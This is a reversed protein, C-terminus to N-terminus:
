VGLQEDRVVEAGCGCRQQRLDSRLGRNLCGCVGACVLNIAQKLSNGGMKDGLQELKVGAVPQSRSTSAHAVDLAVGEEAAHGPFSEATLM